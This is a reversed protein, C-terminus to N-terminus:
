SKKEEDKSLLKQMPQSNLFTDSIKQLVGEKDGSLTLNDVWEVVDEFSVEPEIQKVFANGLIGAWVMRVINASTTPNGKVSSLNEGAYMNFKLGVKKGNIDIQIYGNM